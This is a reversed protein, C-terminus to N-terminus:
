DCGVIAAKGLAWCARASSWFSAGLGPLADVDHHVATGGIISRLEVLMERPSLQEDRIPLLLALKRLCGRTLLQVVLSFM